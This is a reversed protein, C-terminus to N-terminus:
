RGAARRRPLSPVVLEYVGRGYTSLVIRGAATVDFSTVVVPPMGDMFPQWQGQGQRRFVGVDTGAYLITDDSPDVLLANVPIDPLGASISQWSAGYDQTVFVHDSRYGSFAVYAVSPNRRHPVVARVSRDPLGATVDTWTLGEDRSVMVRGRHSGTYLLQPDLQSVGIASLVDSRGRTLDLTGAPATWNDGFDRSLFLRWTGFYLTGTRRSQEFPAIFGVRAEGSPEGFTATSSITNRYRDGNSAFEVLTCFIYNSIIRSPDNLNFVITGYDGTIVERWSGDPLRRELGNDQTGLFLLNADFPHANVRYAQVLSLSSNLTDFTTGGNRTLFAGGDNGLYFTNSNGAFAIAHQDIHSTSGAPDFHGNVNINRTMNQWTAGADVSKWGDRDHFGVYLTADNWPDNQLYASKAQPLSTATQQSWTIGYDDSLLFRPRLATETTIVAHVYIRGGSTVALTYNPQSGPDPDGSYLLSWTAGGDTSRHVGRSLGPQDPRSVGVLLTETTLPHAIFDTILGHLQTSWTVGGDVSLLVGSSFVQGSMADQRSTQAVWLRDPNGSDVVVRIATGRPAFTPGSVLQWTAGADASRLVGTGLFDSGMAAYVVRPDSPAFAIAGVSLDVHEDTVPTFSAGSDNSRWIGGSSAGVLVLGPDIPSVALAKVRGTATKWPWDVRVPLPGIPRWYPVPAAGIASPVARLRVRVAEEWAQRRAERPVADFPYARQEYMWRARAGGKEHPPFSPPPGYTRCSVLLLLLLAFRGRTLPM